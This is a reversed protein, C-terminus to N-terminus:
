ETPLDIAVFLTHKNSTLHSKILLTKPAVDQSGRPRLMATILIDISYNIQGLSYALLLNQCKIATCQREKCRIATPYM